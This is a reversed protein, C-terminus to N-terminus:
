PRLFGALLYDLSIVGHDSRARSLTASVDHRRLFNGRQDDVTSVARPSPKQEEHRREDAIGLGPMAAVVVLDKRAGHVAIGRM